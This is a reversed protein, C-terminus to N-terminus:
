WVVGRGKDPDQTAQLENTVVYFEVTSLAINAYPLTSEYGGVGSNAAPDWIMLTNGSNSYGRIGIWHYIDRGAPHYNYHGRYAYEVTAAIIPKDSTIDGIVISRLQAGGDDPLKEQYYPTGGLWRNLALPMYNNYGSGTKTGPLFWNTAGNKETALYNDGALHAQTLTLSPDRKSNVVGRMARIASYAVAPGCYYSKQQPYQTVLISDSTAADAPGVAFVSIILAAAASLAARRSSGVTM